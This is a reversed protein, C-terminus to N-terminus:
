SSYSRPRHCIALAASFNHFDRTVGPMSNSVVKFSTEEAVTQGWSVGQQVANQTDTIAALSATLQQDFMAKQNPFLQVLTAYAAQVAAARESADPPAAPPVYIATYNRQIGNVADFIAAQVIAATRTTVPAPTVPATLTAQIMAHNWDGIEDAFGVGSVFGSAMLMWLFLRLTAASPILQKIRSESGHRM